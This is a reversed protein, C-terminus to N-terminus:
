KTFCFCFILTCKCKWLNFTELYVSFNLHIELKPYLVTFFFICIYHTKDLGFTFMFCDLTRLTYNDDSPHGWSVSQFIFSKGTTRGSIVFIYLNTKFWVSKKNRFSKIALFYTMILDFCIRNFKFELVYFNCMSKQNEKANPNFVVFCFCQGHLKPLECVNWSAILIETKM